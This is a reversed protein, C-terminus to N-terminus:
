REKEGDPEEVVIADDNTDASLALVLSLLVTWEIREDENGNGIYEVYEDITRIIRLINVTIALKVSKDPVNYPLDTWYENDRKGIGEPLDNENDESELVPELVTGIEEEKNDDNMAEKELTPSILWCYKEWLRAEENKDENSRYINEEADVWSPNKYTSSIRVM